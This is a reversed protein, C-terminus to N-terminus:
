AHESKTQKESSQGSQQSEAIIRRRTYASKRAIILAQAHYTRADAFDGLMGCVWGINGLAIGQAYRDGLEINLLNAQEYYSRATMYDKQIYAASNALNAISRAEL